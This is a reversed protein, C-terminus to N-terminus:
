PNPHSGRGPSPLEPIAPDRSHLGIRATGIDSSAVEYMKELTFPSLVRPPELDTPQQDTPHSTDPSAQTKTTDTLGYGIKFLSLWSPNDAPTQNWPDDDDYAM